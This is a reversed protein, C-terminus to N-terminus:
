LANCTNEGPKSLSRDNKVDRPPPNLFTHHILVEGEGGFITVHSFTGGGGQCYCNKFHM